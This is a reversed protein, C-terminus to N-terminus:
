KALSNDNWDLEIILKHQPDIQFSQVPAARRVTIQNLAAQCACTVTQQSGDALTVQIDVPIALEGERAVSITDGDIAKAVYNITEGHYVLGNFFWDLPQASVREAVAQLDATTPHAFRYTQAYARLIAEMQAQGLVRELTMLAMDPKAYAATVYAGWGQFDWAKGEMPLDPENLYNHRRGFLFGPPFDGQSLTSPDLAHSAAILRITSYDAFGEDLWPEEAENTAVTSQFWQHAIEHAVTITLGDTWPDSASSGGGEAGATVFTPYEMGGAGAGAEPVDVVTLRAYPYPFYWGGFRTLADASIDLVRGASWAHEPLYLYVVEVDGVRRAATKLNPSAVWAFDIVGRAAYRVTRNGDGSSHDEVPLGTAGSAYGAPLTITVDYNGFDAFFEANGHFPYANWGAPTWVGLKPFWQGVLFFPAGAADLAWGTRAFVRPLQAEFDVALRIAQGPEVPAPLAARALTGDAQPELKLVQGAGSDENAIRLGTVEIWGNDEPTFRDGRLQGGSERMFITDLSKFANLYLHFVLDPIPQRTTNRYTITESGALRHRAADLRVTIAYDAVDPAGPNSPTPGPTPTLGTTAEPAIPAPRTLLASSTPSATPAGPVGGTTAPRYVGCAALALVLVLIIRPARRM